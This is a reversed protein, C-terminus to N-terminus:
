KLRQCDMLSYVVSALEDATNITGATFAEELGLVLDDRDPIRSECYTRNAQQFRKGSRYKLARSEYDNSEVRQGVANPKYMLAGDVVGELYHVCAVSEVDQNCAALQSASASTVVGFTFMLIILSRKM